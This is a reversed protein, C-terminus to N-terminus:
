SVNQIKKLELTISEDSYGLENGICDRQKVGLINGMRLM